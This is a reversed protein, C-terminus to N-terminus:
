YINHKVMKKFRIKEEVKESNVKSKECCSVFIPVAVKMEMSDTRKGDTKLHLRRFGNERIQGHTNTYTQTNKM